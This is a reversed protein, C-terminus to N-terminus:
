TARRRGDASQDMPIAAAPIASLEQLEYQEKHQKRRITSERLSAEEAAEQWTTSKKPPSWAKRSWGSPTCRRWRIEARPDQSVSDAAHLESRRSENHGYKRYCVMDIVVDKHFRQRYDYALQMARVCAEPDDGNVHFM